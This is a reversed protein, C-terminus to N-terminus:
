GNDAVEKAKKATTTPKDDKIEEILREAVLNQIQQETLTGVIDGKSWPGVDGLARYKKAM